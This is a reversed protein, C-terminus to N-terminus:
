LEEPDRGTMAEFLDRVEEGMLVNVLRSVGMRDTELVAASLHDEGFDLDFAITYTLQM